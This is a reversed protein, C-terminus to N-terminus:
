ITSIDQILLTMKLEKIDGRYAQSTSSFEVSIIKFFGYGNELKEIIRVMPIFEGKIVLQHTELVFEGSEKITFPIYNDISCNEQTIISFVTNPFSASFIINDNGKDSQVGQKKKLETYINQQRTYSVITGITKGVSYRITLMPLFVILVSLLLQGKYREPFKM